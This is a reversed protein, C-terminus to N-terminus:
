FKKKEYKNNINKYKQRTMSAKARSNTNRQTTFQSNERVM